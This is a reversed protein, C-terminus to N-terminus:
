DRHPMQVASIYDQGGAVLGGKFARGIPFRATSFVVADKM